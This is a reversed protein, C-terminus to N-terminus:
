RRSPPMTMDCEGYETHRRGESQGCGRRAFEMAREFYQRNAMKSLSSAWRSSGHTIMALSRLGEWPLILIQAELDYDEWDLAVSLTVMEKKVANGPPVANALAGPGWIVFSFFVAVIPPSRM